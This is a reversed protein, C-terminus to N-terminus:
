HGGFHKRLIQFRLSYKCIRFESRMSFNTKLIKLSSFVTLIITAKKLVRQQHSVLRPREKIPHKHHLSLLEVRALEEPVESSAEGVPAKGNTELHNIIASYNQRDPNPNAHIRM